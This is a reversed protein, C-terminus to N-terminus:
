RTPPLTAVPLLRYATAGDKLTISKAEIICGGDVKIIRPLDQNEQASNQIFIDVLIAGELLPLIVLFWFLSSSISVLKSTDNDSNESFFPLESRTSSNPNNKM